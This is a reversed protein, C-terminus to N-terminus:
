SKNAKVSKNSLELLLDGDAVQQGPSVHIEAITGDKPSVITNEIKMSELVMLPAGEKLEQAPSVLVKIVKGYTKAHIKNEERNAKKNKPKNKLVRLYAKQVNWDQDEFSIKLGGEEQHISFIKLGRNTQLFLTNAKYEISQIFYSKKEITVKWNDATQGWHVEYNAENVRINQRTDEKRSGWKHWPSKSAKTPLYFYATGALAILEAKRSSKKKTEEIFGPIQLNVWQVHLKNEIFDSHRQIFSLFSMNTNIGIIKLQDLAYLSRKIATSREPAHVIQKMLLPDYTDAIKTGPIIGSDYRVQNGPYQLHQITGHNPLFRNLPNEAYIRVEIAHGHLQINKQKPLEKKNALEIQLAVLDTETVAETVPHEVQIRTNMELFYHNGERDLLFEVTGLGHYKIKSAMQVTNILMQERKPPALSPSPAEEIIKQYNRQLSCEREFFHIINGKGDGLIQIEIHRANEIYKELYVGPEGFLREAQNSAKQMAENLNKAHDVKIMGKGGGGGNAKILVPYHSASIELKHYIPLTPIGHNAATKKAKEKNGMLAITEPSPGLFFIGAEECAKAFARNEALFGYGPHIADVGSELAIGIIQEINLYSESLTNGRLLYAENAEKRHLADQEDLAYIAVSQLNLKKITRIIRVAIEGRNAILIKTIM